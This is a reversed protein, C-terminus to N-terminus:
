ETQPQKNFDLNLKTNLQKNQIKPEYDFFLDIQSTSNIMEYHNQIIKCADIGNLIPMELDLFIADYFHHNQSYFKHEVAEELKENQKVLDLAIQGNQAIDIRQIYKLQKMTTEIVFLSYSDDNALLIKLKRKNYKKLSEAAEKM